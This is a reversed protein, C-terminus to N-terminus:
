IQDFNHFGKSLYHHNYEHCILVFNESKIAKPPGAGSLILPLNAIIPKTAAIPTSIAFPCPKNSCIDPPPTGHNKPVLTTNVSAEKIGNKWPTLTSDLDFPIM